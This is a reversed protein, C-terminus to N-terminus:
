PKARDTMSPAGSVDPAPRHRCAPQPAARTHIVKHNTALIRADGATGRRGAGDPPAATTDRRTGRSGAAEGWSQQVLQQVRRAAPGADGAAHGGSARRGSGAVKRM